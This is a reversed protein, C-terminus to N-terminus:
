PSGQGAQGGNEAEMRGILAALKAENNAKCEDCGQRDTYGEQSCIHYLGQEAIVRLLDLIEVKTPV